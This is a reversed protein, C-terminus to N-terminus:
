PNAGKKQWHFHVDKSEENAFAHIKDLVPEWTRGSFTTIQVGTSYRLLECIKTDEFEEMSAVVVQDPNDCLFENGCHKCIM